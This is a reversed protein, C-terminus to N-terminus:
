GVREMDPTYRGERAVANLQARRHFVRQAAAVNEPRGRWAELVPEQLARAYSFSIAWPAQPLLRNIANLNATAQQPTQGGSLFNISPVAAPVTRRLVAITERAVEEPTPKHANDKGPLVMSPKLLMLELAV